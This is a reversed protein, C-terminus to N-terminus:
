RDFLGRLEPATGKLEQIEHRMGQWLRHDMWHADMVWALFGGILIIAGLRILVPM